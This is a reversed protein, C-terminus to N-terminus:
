RQQPNRGAVKLRRRERLRSTIDALLAPDNIADLIKAGNREEMQEILALAFDINGDNAFEKIVSAATDVNMAQMLGAAQRENAKQDEPSLGTKSKFTDQEQELQAKAEALERRKQNIQSLLSEGATMTDNVHALLGEMEAQRAELDKHELQMRREREDLEQERQQLREMRKRNIVGFRFVDEASIPKTPAVIPLPKKKQEEQQLPTTAQDEEQTTSIGENPDVSAVAQEVGDDPSKESTLNFFYWSGCAGLAFLFVGFLSYLATKIM